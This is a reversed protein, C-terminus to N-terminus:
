SKFAFCHFLAKNEREAIQKERREMAKMRGSLAARTCAKRGAMLNLLRATKGMEDQMLAALARLNGAAKELESEKENWWDLMEATEAHVRAYERAVIEKQKYFEFGANDLAREEHREERAVALAKEKEQEQLATRMEYFARVLAVKFEVVKHTNRMFSILLTAQQENLLAIVTDRGSSINKEKLDVYQIKSGIGKIKAAAGNLRAMEGNEGHALAVFRVVGFEALDNKYRRALKIVNEHPYNLARAVIETSTVPTNDKSLFVLSTNNM